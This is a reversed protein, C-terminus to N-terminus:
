SDKMYLKTMKFSQEWIRKSSGQHIKMNWHNHVAKKVLKRRLCRPIPNLIWSKMISSSPFIDTKSLVHHSSSACRMGFVAYDYPASQHYQELLERLRHLHQSSIPIDITLLKNHQETVWWDKLHQKTYVANYPKHPFFHYHSYDVPQFGYLTENIQIYIHGGLMGGFAKKEEPFERKPRSAYRFRIHLM